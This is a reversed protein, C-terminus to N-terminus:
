KVLKRFLYYCYIIFFCNNCLLKYLKKQSNSLLLYENDKLFCEKKEIYKKFLLKVNKKFYIINFKKKNKKNLFDCLIIKEFIQITKLKYLFLLNNNVCFSYLFDLIKAQEDKFKLDFKHTVSNTNVYYNYLYENLMYINSSNITYNLVFLMDEGYKLKSNFLERINKNKYVKNWCFITSNFNCEPKVNTFLSMIFNKKDIEFSEKAEWKDYFIKDDSTIKTRFCIMDYDKKKLVNVLSSLANSEFWDDADLFLIYDHKALKIGNNRTISVGSNPQKVSVIRNDLKSYENIIDYTNDSSGDDIVILEWDGFDQSLISDIAKAITNKANYAPIIISFM